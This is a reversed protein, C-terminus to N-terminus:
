RARKRGDRKGALYLRRAEREDVVVDKEAAIVMLFEVIDEAKRPNGRIGCNIDAGLIAPGAPRVFASKLMALAFTEEKEDIRRGDAVRM